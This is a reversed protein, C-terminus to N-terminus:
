VYGSQYFSDNTGLRISLAKFVDNIREQVEDERTCYEEWHNWAYSLYHLYPAIQKAPWPLGFGYM